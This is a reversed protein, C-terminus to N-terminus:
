VTDTLIIFLIDTKHINIWVISGKIHILIVESNNSILLFKIKDRMSKHKIMKINSSTIILFGSINVNLVIYSISLNLGTDNVNSVMILAIAWTHNNVIASLDFCFIHIKISSVMWKVIPLSVDPM